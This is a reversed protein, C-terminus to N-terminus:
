REWDAMRLKRDAYVGGIKKGWVNVVVVNKEDRTVEVEGDLRKQWYVAVGKGKKVESGLTFAEHTQTRNGKRKEV